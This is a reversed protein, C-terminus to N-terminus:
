VRWAIEVRGDPGHKKTSGITGKAVTVHDIFLRLLRAQQLIPLKEWFVHVTHEDVSMLAREQETAEHKAMQLDFLRYELDRIEAQFRENARGLESDGIKGDAYADLLRDQKVQIEALRRSLKEVDGTRNKAAAAAEDVRKQLLRKDLHALFAEVVYPEIRSEVIQVGICHQDGKKSQGSCEWKVENARAKRYLVAGCVGCRMLGSLPYQSPPTPTGYRNQNASTVTQAAQWEELSVLPPVYKSCDVPKGDRGLYYGAYIPNKLIRIVNSVDLRGSCLKGDIKKGSRQGKIGWVRCFESIARYSVGRGRARVMEAVFLGNQPHIALYGKECGEKTYGFWVPGGLYRGEREAQDRADRVRESLVEGERQDMSWIIRLMNRGDPTSSDVNFNLAVIDIGRPWLQNECLDQLKISERGVRSWEWVYIVDGPEVADLLANWEERKAWKKGPRDRDSFVDKVQHGARDAEERCLNEQMDRSVKRDGKRVKSERTYIVAQRKEEKAAQAAQLRAM